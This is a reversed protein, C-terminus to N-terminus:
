FHPIVPDARPSVVCCAIVNRHTSKWWFVPFGFPAAALLRASLFDGHGILPFCYDTFQAIRHGLFLVYCIARTDIEVGTKCFGEPYCRWEHQLINLPLPRSSRHASMSQFAPM